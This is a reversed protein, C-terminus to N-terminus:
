WTQTPSLLKAVWAAALVVLWARIVWPQHLTFTRRRCWQTMCLLLTVGLCLLIPITFPNYYLSLRWDGQLLALLSRTGGTTPAPLHFLATLLSPPVQGHYLWWANWLLYVALLALGFSKLLLCAITRCQDRM